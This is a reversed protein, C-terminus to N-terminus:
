AVKLVEQPCFMAGLNQVNQLWNLQMCEVARKIWNGGATAIISSWVRDQNIWNVVAIYLKGTYIFNTVKCMVTAKIYRWGGVVGWGIVLHKKMIENCNEMTWQSFRKITYVQEPVINVRCNATNATLLRATHRTITYQFLSVANAMSMLAHKYVSVAWAM